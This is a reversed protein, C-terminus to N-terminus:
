NTLSVSRRCAEQLGLFQARKGEVEGMGVIGTGRPLLVLRSVQFLATTYAFAYLGFPGPNAIRYANGQNMRQVLSAMLQTSDGPEGGPHSASKLAVGARGSEADSSWRDELDAIQM